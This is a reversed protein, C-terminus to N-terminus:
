VGPFSFISNFIFVFTTTPALRPLTIRLFPHLSRAGDITAAERYERPIAQLGALYIVLNYGLTKWISFIIVAPLAMRSSLLWPQGPLHVLKLIVNFLGYQPNYLWWWVLAAAVTSTVMPAFYVAKFLEKLPFEENFLVALIMGLAAAIPVIAAAYILTHLTAARFIEAHVLGAVNQLGLFTLRGKLLEVKFFSYYLTQLSPWVRFLGFLVIVPAIFLYAHVYHRRHMRSPAVRGM